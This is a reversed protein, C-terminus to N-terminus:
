VEQLFAGASWVPGFCFSFLSHGRAGSNNVVSGCVDLMLSIAAKITWKADADFTRFGDFLHCQRMKRLQLINSQDVKLSVTCKKSKDSDDMKKKLGTQTHTMVDQSILALRM